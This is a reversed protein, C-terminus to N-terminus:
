LVSILQSMPSILSFPPTGREKACLLHTFYEPEQLILVPKFCLVDRLIHNHQLSPSPAARDWLQASVQFHLLFNSLKQKTKNQKPCPCGINLCTYLFLSLFFPNILVLMLRVWPPIEIDSFEQQKVPHPSWLPLALRQLLYFKM